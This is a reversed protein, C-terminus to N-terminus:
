VVHFVLAEFGDFFGEGGFEAVPEVGDDGEIRQGHRDDFLDDVFEDVLMQVPTGATQHERWSVFYVRGNAVRDVRIKMGRVHGYEQGTAVAAVKM